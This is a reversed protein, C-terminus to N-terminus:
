TNLFVQDWEEQKFGVLKVSESIVFPRKILNGNAALEAMMQDVSMSKLKEKYGGQRYDQGSTNFLRAYKGDYADLMAKLEAVTPPQERIPIEQYEIQHENLYKKAKQCTSCNAYLYIKLNSM